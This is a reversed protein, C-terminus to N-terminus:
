RQTKVKEIIEECDNIIEIARDAQKASEGIQTYVHKIRGRSKGIEGRVSKIGASHSAIGSKLELTASALESNLREINNLESELKSDAGRYYYIVGGCILAIVAIFAFVAAPHLNTNSIKIENM